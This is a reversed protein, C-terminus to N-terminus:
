LAQMSVYMRLQLNYPIFGMELVGSFKLIRLCHLCKYVHNMVIIALEVVMPRSLLIGLISLKTPILGM